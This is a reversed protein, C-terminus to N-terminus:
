FVVVEDAASRPLRVVFEAGMGAGDSQAEVTGGHLEVIAKVLALGLGLGGESWAVTTEAQEFPRFLSHRLAPDFGPGTDRLRLCIVPAGADADLTLTVRGGEPTFKAANQLLNRIVQELRVGDGEVWLPRDTDRPAALAEEWRTPEEPDALRNM